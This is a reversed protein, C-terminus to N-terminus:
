GVEFGCDEIAEIIKEQNAPAEFSVRVEKSELVCEVEKVGQVESVFKTIKSVCHNCHMESVKFVLNEM